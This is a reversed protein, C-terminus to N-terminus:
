ESGARAYRDSSARRGDERDPAIVTICNFPPLIGRPTGSLIRLTSRQLLEKVPVPSDIHRDHRAASAVLVPQSVAEHPRVRVAADLPSWLNEGTRRASPRLRRRRSPGSEQECVGQLGTPVPAAMTNISVRRICAWPRVCIRRTYASGANRVALAILGNSSSQASAM